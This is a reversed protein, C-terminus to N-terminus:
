AAVEQFRALAEQLAAVGSDALPILPQRPFGVDLGLLKLAAKLAPVGYSSGLLKALPALQRQLVRAEPYRRQRTLEFLRVCADPVVCALALIGGVAGVALAPYFTGGSGALVSFRDPTGDVLDAIRAIDGSSEKIGIVNPHESLHSVASVSLTVGTVATYNYLIVPIPSADAIATYFRVFVDTTMQAKFFAPTRVLVADAGLAAARRAAQLSAQTSERATGVVFPRVAPVIARAEAVVRESEDEDLLAAEGSSGLVVIGTLPSKLWWELAARFRVM